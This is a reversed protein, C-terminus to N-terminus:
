KDNKDHIITNRKHTQIHKANVTFHMKFLIITLFQVHSTGAVERQTYSTVTTTVNDIESNWCM